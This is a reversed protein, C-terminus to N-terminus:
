TRGMRCRRKKVHVDKWFCFYFSWFVWHQIIPQNISEICYFWFGRLTTKTPSHSLKIRFYTHFHFHWFYSGLFSCYPFVARSYPINLSKIFFLPYHKHLSSCVSPFVLFQCQPCKLQSEHPVLSCLFLHAKETFLDLTWFPFFVFAQCWWCIVGLHATVEHYASCYLNYFIISLLLFSKPHFFVESHHCTEKCSM